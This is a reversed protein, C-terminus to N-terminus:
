RPNHVVKVAASRGEGHCVECQEVVESEDIAQQTTAFNGGQQTMHAAAVDSDHCSSCVATIPTTVTDDRPDQLDAGTDVTPALVGSALPLLYGEESHCATCNSLDGPYHVADEDFVTDAIQLPTERIGAAHIGHIMIKMDVVQEKLGDAPPEELELRDELDTNRPNHCTVCSDINDTRNGGHFSLSQHCSLCKGLEVVEGDVDDRRPVARGDPENISFFEHVNTFPISEDGDGFDIRARGEIVAVGSGNAGIGPRESGDPIPIPATVRYAGDGIPVGEQNANTSISNANDEQNGTNNYDLTDWAIRVRLRSRSQTWIPDNLIDYPEGTQPNSMRIDVTPTEGQGTNAIALIEAAIAASAEDTLIRHSDAISGADGGESHCSACGLDDPQRGIHGDPGLQDDHCSGCAAASAVESWNDGQSTLALSYEEGNPYMLDAGTASGAHCNVCNRIDQPYHLTSYDHGGVIYEGGAQVSPLNAGMHIKHVMVKMDVTNTSSPDTSGPNHCTVCYKVEVRRGHIRLPDHCSNCNDTAAIDMSMLGETAGTAPVFDHTPNVYVGSMANDFQMGLRHVLSPDYSLDLGEIEAQELSESDLDNVNLVMRYQYTGDGNNTFEGDDTNRVGEYTAQLRPETGDGDDPDPNRVRNIYSQWTGTFNGLPSSQLKAITFRVDNKTLDTIATDNGNALQFNVVARGDEPITVSTIFARLEEAEAYPVASPAPPIPEPPVPQGPPPPGAEVGSASNGGGGGGCAVLLGVLGALLWNRTQTLM